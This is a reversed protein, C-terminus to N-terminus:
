EAEATPIPLRQVEVAWGRDRWQQAKQEARTQSLLARRRREGEPTTGLVLLM